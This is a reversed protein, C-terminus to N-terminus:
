KLLFISFSTSTVSTAFTATGTTSSSMYVDGLGGKNILLFGVPTAKLTHTITTAGASSASTFVRFEGEINEGRAGTVGSGLRIRGKFANFLNILDGDLTQLYDGQKTIELGNYNSLKTLKM